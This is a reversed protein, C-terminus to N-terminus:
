SWRPGKVNRASPHRTLGAFPFRHGVPEGRGGLEKKKPPPPPAPQEDPAPAAPPPTAEPGAHAAEDEKKEEFFAQIVAMATPAAASSGYGAHENIVVVAIEPKDAPAFSDFWAHDGEWYSLDTSKIRVAGMAVVQATGTKGAVVIDKLRHGYTTGGPENVVGVLGSVVAALNAPDVPLKQRVIPEFSKITKGDADEIRRVVQPQYVTGGNGLAAYLVAMQLPTVNVDGQGIATNLAQGKQYGGPVYKNEYATDPIVGSVENDLGIGTPKGLGLSRATEAIADLGIKDGVWYFFADCSRVIAEHLTLRGHGSEKFCRWRRHGLTYGGNCVFPTDVTIGHHELGALATVAKFTSGPHYQGQLPRFMEPKFPDQAMEALQARTVRGTLLNPDFEPRSVMALIFGTNPDLAVVAGAKGPFAEDAAKQLRADISLVVNHGPHPPQLREQEPILSNLDPLRTGKADVAVHEVGDVGRLYGEFAREIGRRGLYDGEHYDKGAAQLQDLEEPGVESLYGLTHAGLTGMPYYRHPTPILDVAAGFEARHAEYIDLADRGIDVKVLFPKFRSLGRTDKLKQHVHAQEEDTLGLYASLRGVVEDCSKGCIHPTLEVDFSPRSTALVVGRRDLLLGRDAPIKVDKVYNNVSRDYYEHGLSVQLRYLRGLLVLFCAAALAGFITLRTWLDRASSRKSLLEAV